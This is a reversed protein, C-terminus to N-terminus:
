SVDNGRKAGARKLHFIDSCIDPDLGYMLDSRTWSIGGGSFSKISGSTREEFKRRVMQLAGSKLCKPIESELYGANYVVHVKQNGIYWYNEIAKLAGVEKYLDYNSTTFTTLNNTVGEVSAIPYHDLQLITQYSGIDYKENYVSKFIDRDLWKQLKETAIDNLLKLLTTYKDEQLDIDCFTKIEEITAFDAM